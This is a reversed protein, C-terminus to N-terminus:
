VVEKNEVKEEIGGMVWNLVTVWHEKIKEWEKSGQQTILWDIREQIKNIEDVKTFHYLEM